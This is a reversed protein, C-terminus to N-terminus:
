VNEARARLWSENNSCAVLVILGPESTEWFGTPFRPNKYLLTYGGNVAKKTLRQPKESAIRLAIERAKAAEGHIVGTTYSAHSISVCLMIVLVPISFKSLAIKSMIKKM